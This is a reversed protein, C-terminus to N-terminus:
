EEEYDGGLLSGNTDPYYGYNIATMIVAESVQDYADDNQIPCSFRLAGKPKKNAFSIVPVGLFDDAPMVAWRSGGGLPNRIIYAEPQGEEDEIWWAPPNEREGPCNM